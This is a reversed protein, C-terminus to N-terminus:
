FFFIAYNKEKISNLDYTVIQVKNTKNQNEKLKELQSETQKIFDDYKSLKIFLMAATVGFVVACCKIVYNKTKENIENM